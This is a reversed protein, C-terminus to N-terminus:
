NKFDMRERKDRLFEKSRKEIIKEFEEKSIRNKTKYPQINKINKTEFNQLELEYVNNFNVKVILGKMGM